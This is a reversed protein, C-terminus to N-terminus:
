HAGICQEARVAAAATGPVESLSACARERQDTAAIVFFARFSEAAEEERRQRARAVGLGLLAEADRPNRLLVAAFATAARELDGVALATVGSNQVAEANTGDLRLAEDFFVAAEEVRNAALLSAGALSLCHSDERQRSSVRVPWVLLALAAVLAVLGLGGVGLLARRDSLRQLTEVRGLLLPAPALLYAFVYLPLRYREVVFTVVLTGVYGASLLTLARVEGRRWLALAGLVALPWLWAARLPTLWLLPIFRERLCTVSLNSPVEEGSLVLRIKRWLLTAAEVPQTRVFSRTESFFLEGTEKLTATRGLRRSAEAMYDPIEHLPHGRVFPAAMWTGDAGSHNGIYLLIGATANGPWWREEALGNRISAVAPIAFLGLLLAVLRVGKLSRWAVFALLPVLLLFNGRQLTLSGAVLGAGLAHLWRGEEEEARLFLLTALLLTVWLLPEKGISVEDIGLSGTALALLCSILAHRLGFLRQAICWLLAFGVLGLAVNFLRAALLSHGALRMVGALFYPYAPDQFFVRGGDGTLLREAWGLYSEEDLSPSAGMPSTLYSSLLGASLAAKGAIVLWFWRRWRADVSHAGTPRAELSTRTPPKQSDM